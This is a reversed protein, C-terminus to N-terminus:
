SVKRSSPTPTELVVGRETHIHHRVALWLQEAEEQNHRQAESFGSIHEDLKKQLPEQIITKNLAVCAGRTKECDHYTVMSAVIRTFNLLHENFQNGLADIRGLKKLLIAILVTVVSGLCALVYPLVVEFFGPAPLQSQM